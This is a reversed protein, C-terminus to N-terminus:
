VDLTKDTIINVVFESKEGGKKERKGKGLCESRSVVGLQGLLESLFINLKSEFAEKM